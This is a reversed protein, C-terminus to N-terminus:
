HLWHQQCTHYNPQIRSNLSCGATILYGGSCVPLLSVKWYGKQALCWAHGMHALFLFPLTISAKAAATERTQLLIELRATKLSAENNYNTKLFTTAPNSGTTM